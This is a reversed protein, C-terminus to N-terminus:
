EVGNSDASKSYFVEMETGLESLENLLGEKIRQYEDNWIILMPEDPLRMEIKGNRHETILFYSILSGRRFLSDKYYIQGNYYNGDGDDWKGTQVKLRICPDNVKLDKAYRKILDNIKGM